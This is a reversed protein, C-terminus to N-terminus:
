VRRTTLAPAIGNMPRRFALHRRHWLEITYVILEPTWRFGQRPGQGVSPPGTKRGPPPKAAPAELGANM